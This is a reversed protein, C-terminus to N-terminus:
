ELVLMGVSLNRHQNGIGTSLDVPGQEGFATFGVCAEPLGPLGALDSTLNERLADGVAIGLGGCYILLAASPSGSIGGNRKANTYATRIAEGAAKASDGGGENAMEVLYDGENAEAFALVSKEPQNIAAVHIALYDDGRQLAYPRTSMPGLVMGGEEYEKSIADGVLDHMVDAAPLDKLTMMLRGEAKTVKVKNETPTYPSALCAGAKVDSGCVGFMVVGAGATTGDHFVSWSGSVDNDAASGGVIAVDDGMVSSVGRMVDEENGPTAMIYVTTVQESGAAEKLQTAADASGDAISAGDKFIASATVFSEPKGGLLLVSVGNAVPGGPTLVAGCSTAGVFPTVGLAVKLAKSVEAGDRDTTAGVIALCPEASGLSAKAAAVAATAAATTDDLTSVGSGAALKASASTTATPTPTNIAPAPSTSIQTERRIGRLVTCPRSTSLPRNQPRGRLSCGTFVVDATGTPVPLASVFAMNVADYARHSCALNISPSM